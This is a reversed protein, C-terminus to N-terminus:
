KTYPPLVLFVSDREDGPVLAALERAAGAKGGRAPVAGAVDGAVLHLFLDPRATLRQVHAPGEIVLVLWLALVRAREAASLRGVTSLPLERVLVVVLVHAARLVVAISVAQQEKHSLGRVM